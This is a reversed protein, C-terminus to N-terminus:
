GCRCGAGEKTFRLIHDIVAEPDGMKRDMIWQVFVGQFLLAIFRSIVSPPLTSTIEGSKQAALVFTEFVGYLKDEGEKIKKRLEKHKDVESHLMWIIQANMASTLMSFREKFEAFVMRLVTELGSLFDPSKQLIAEVSIASKQHERIILSLFITEKDPYYNYLSAKSFGAQEAIDELRADLYGRKLTM